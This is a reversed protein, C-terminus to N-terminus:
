KEGYDGQLCVCKECRARWSQMAAAFAEKSVKSSSRVVYYQPLFSYINAKVGVSAEMSHMCAVVKVCESEVYMM